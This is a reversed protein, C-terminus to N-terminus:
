PATCIFSEPRSKDGKGDWKAAQPYPCLPRGRLLGKGPNDDVFKAAIIRDPARDKEVWNSIAAQWDIASPGPGGACHLMGPAMYLRYFGATPGMKAQVTKFYAISEKAPIAPDAWGHYQILKGGHAKFASFDPSTSNLIPAFKKQIAPMDREYNFRKLDYNPDGYVVYAM